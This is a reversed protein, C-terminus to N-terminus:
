KQLANLRDALEQASLDGAAPTMIAQDELYVTGNQVYAQAINRTGKHYYRALNGAVFYSREAGSMSATSAPAVFEKGHIKVVGNAVTVVKNSYESIQKAYTDRREEHGPHDSPNFIEGAFSSSSEGYKEIVKQWVAATAGINYSTNAIYEFALKDAEREQPKTIHVSDIYNVAVSAGIAAATGGGAAAATGLLTVPIQQQYGKLVHNKQGHAMEHGLVVAIEDDTVLLDFIGTNITMNHGLSCAANFSTDPNIYYNYPMKSISPDVKAVGASLNAMITDVRSNLYPDNNVGQKNKMEQFLAQRGEETDNLQSLQHNTEAMQVGAAIVSGLVSADAQSPMTALPMGAALCTIIIKALNKKVNFM